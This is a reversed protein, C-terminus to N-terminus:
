TMFEDSKKSFTRKFSKEVTIAISFKDPQVRNKLHRCCFGRKLGDTIETEYKM